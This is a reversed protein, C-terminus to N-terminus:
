SRYHPKSNKNLRASLQLSAQSIRSYVEFSFKCALIPDRQMTVLKLLFLEPASSDSTALSLLDGPM